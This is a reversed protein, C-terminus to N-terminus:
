AAADSTEKDLYGDLLEIVRDNVEAGASSVEWGSHAMEAARDPSLTESLATTLMESNYVKRAAGADSLRDYSNQFADTYPGHLIASGLAAAEFPDSGGAGILSNGLFCVPALRYWLGLDKDGYTIYVDTDPAPTPDEERLCVRIGLNTLKRKATRAQSQDSVHLIMILGQVMRSVRRQAKALAAVEGVAAHAALWVPRNNLKAALRARELEDYPLARAGAHMVGLVELRTRPANAKRLRKASEDTKALIRDFSSLYLGIFNPFWIYKRAKARSMGANAYIAPIKARAVNRILIPRISDTVWVLADPRWKQLFKTTFSPHDLPLHQHTGVQDFLGMPDDEETTWLFSVDDRGEFHGVVEGFDKCQALTPAHLWILIGDDRTPFNAGLLQDVLEARIDQTELKRLLKNKEFPQRFWANVHRLALGLSVRKM